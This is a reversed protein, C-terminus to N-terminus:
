QAPVQGTNMVTKQAQQLSLWADSLAFARCTEKLIVRYYPSLRLFSEIFTKDEATLNNEEVLLDLTSKVVQPPCASNARHRCYFDGREGGDSRNYGNPVKCNLEKILAQERNNAQKQTNCEEVIEITFNEVGCERMANGLPSIAKAHQMFRKELSQRTQGIYIKGNTQNTIKYVVM